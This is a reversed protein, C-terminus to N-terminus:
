SNAISNLMPLCTYFYQLVRCMATDPHPVLTNCGHIDLRILLYSARVNLRNIGNKAALLSLKSDNLQQGGGEIRHFLRFIKKQLCPCPYASIYVTVYLLMHM